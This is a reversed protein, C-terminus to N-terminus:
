NILINIYRHSMLMILNFALGHVFNKIMLKSYMESCFPPTLIPKEKRGANASIIMVSRSSLIMLGSIASNCNRSFVWVSTWINIECTKYRPCITSWSNSAKNCMCGMYALCIFQKRFNVGNFYKSQPIIKRLWNIIWYGIFSENCWRNSLVGMVCIFYAIFNGHHYLNNM